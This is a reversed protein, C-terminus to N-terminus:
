DDSCPVFRAGQEGGGGRWPLTTTSTVAEESQLRKGGGGFVVTSDATIRSVHIHSEAAPGPDPFFIESEV